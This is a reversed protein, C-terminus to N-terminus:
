LIPTFIPKMTEENKANNLLDIFSYLLFLFVLCSLYKSFPIQKLCNMLCFFLFSLWLVHRVHISVYLETVYLWKLFCKWYILDYFYAIENGLQYAIELNELFVNDLYYDIIPDFLLTETLFHSRVRDNDKGIFQPEIGYEKEILTNVMRVLLLKHNLFIAEDEYSSFHDCSFVIKERKQKKNKVSPPIIFNSFNESNAGYFFDNDSLM